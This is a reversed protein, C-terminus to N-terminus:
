ERVKGTLVQYLDVGTTKAVDEAGQFIEPDEFRQLDSQMVEIRAHDLKAQDRMGKLYLEHGSISVMAAVVVGFCLREIWKTEKM